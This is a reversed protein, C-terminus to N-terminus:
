LSGNAPLLMDLVESLEKHFVDSDQGSPAAFQSNLIQGGNGYRLRLAAGSKATIVTPRGELDYELAYQRRDANIEAVKGNRGYILTVQGSKSSDVTKLRGSKDYSYQYRRGDSFSASV